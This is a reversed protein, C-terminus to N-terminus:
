SFFDINKFKGKPRVQPPTWRMEYRLVPFGHKHLDNHLIRVPLHVLMVTDNRSSMMLISLENCREGQGDSLIRGYLEIYEDKGATTPPKEYSRLFRKVIDDPYYRRLNEETDVQNNIPDSLSYVYWEETLDGVTISHVGKEKLAKAFEGSSQREMEGKPLFTGDSTGRFTGYEGLTEIAKCIREWPVLAPDKLTSFPSNSSLDLNLSALLANYQPRLETPM